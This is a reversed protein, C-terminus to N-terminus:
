QNENKIELDTKQEKQKINQKEIRNIFNKNNVQNKKRKKQQILLLFISKISHNELCNSQCTSVSSSNYYPLQFANYYSKIIWVYASVLGKDYCQLSFGQVKYQM